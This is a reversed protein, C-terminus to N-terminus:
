GADEKVPKDFRGYFFGTDDKKWALNSFKVWDLTEPLNQSTNADKIFITSWDSGGRQIQYAMYRGDDSWKKNKLFATGDEALTNPDLFLV